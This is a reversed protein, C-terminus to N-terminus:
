LTLYIQWCCVSICIYSACFCVVFPLGHCLGQSQMAMFFHNATSDDLLGGELGVGLGAGTSLRESGTHKHQCHADRLRYQTSGEGFLQTMMADSLVFGKLWRRNMTLSMSSLEGFVHTV